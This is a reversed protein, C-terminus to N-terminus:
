RRPWTPDDVTLDGEFALPAFAGVFSGRYAVPYGAASVYLDADSASTISAAFAQVNPDASAQAAALFAAGDISYHSVPVGDITEEGM